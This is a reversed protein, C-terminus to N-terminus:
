SARVIRHVEDREKLARALSEAIERAQLPKRLVNSVQAARARESLRPGSYGSMLVIPIDTRLKHIERALETGTMEPMTEDSLVIDFRQPEARFAELAALSGTFGIPEYGLSALLEEGLMVLAEEDDVLLVTEGNGLPLDADDAASPASIEGSVPLYIEFTTGKGLESQVDIAGGLDNVIGHVLSLGLGTGGGVGKTTFFPDFMRELVAPEIGSGTDSVALCLYNGAALSGNSFIRPIPQAVQTLAIDLKGGDRMIQMANTCLNMVVQHIQTADGIVSSDGAELRVNFEISTPLAARLLDATERVVSEVHVPVREGMGSRSFALIREVLAKARNGANLVNDLYRRTASGEAASKQAMEGYGLIAGLINNFDHAIGGALTGMAELKHAQRLQAELLQNQEEARKRATIDTVSGAMRYPRGTEDRFCQGRTLLWRTQGDPQLVRFEAEYRSNRGELHDAVAQDMHRRDDPHISAKNLFESRTIHGIASTTAYLERMRPSLFLRDSYIDWDWHGEDSGTMAVSYREESLRLQEDAEEQRRLQRVFFGILLTAFLILIAGRVLNDTTQERWASFVVSLDRSVVVILPFDKVRKVAAIREKGDMPSTFRVTGGGVIADELLERYQAYSRGIAGEKPPYRALLVGDARFLSIASGKGLDIAQYFRQFYDLEARAVLAGRVGGNGNDLWRSVPFSLVGDTSSVTPAGIFPGTKASNQLSKSNTGDSLGGSPVAQDPSTSAGGGAIDVISFARIQPVGAIQQQLHQDIEEKSVGRAEAIKIWPATNRLILDISQFARATQEALSSTLNTLERDAASRAVEHSRRVDMGISVCMALLLVTAIIVVRRRMWISARASESWPQLAM